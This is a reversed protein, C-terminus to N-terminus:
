RRMVPARPSLCENKKCTEARAWAACTWVARAAKRLSHIESSQFFSHMDCLRERKELIFTEIAATKVLCRPRVHESSGSRTDSSPNEPSIAFSALVIGVEGDKGKAFGLHRLAKVLTLSFLISYPVFSAVGANPARGFKQRYFNRVNKSPTLASCM